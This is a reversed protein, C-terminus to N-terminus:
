NFISNIIYVVISNREKETFPPDQQFLKPMLYSLEKDTVTLRKNQYFDKSLEKFYNIDHENELTLNGKYFKIIKNEESYNEIFGLIITM